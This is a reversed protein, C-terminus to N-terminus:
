HLGSLRAQPEDFEIGVQYANEGVRRVHVVKGQISVLSDQLDIELEMTSGATVEQYVEMGVGSASIDITRGLLVPTKQEEGERNVYSTLFVRNVRPVRREPGM